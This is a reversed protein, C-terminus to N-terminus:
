VVNSKLHGTQDQIRELKQYLDKAEEKRQNISSKTKKLKNQLEKDAEELLRIQLQLKEFKQAELSLTDKLDNCEQTKERLEVINCDLGFV